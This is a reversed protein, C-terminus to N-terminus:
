KRLRIGDLCFYPPYINNGEADTHPSVLDFSLRDIRGLSTLDVKFWDPAVYDYAPFDPDAGPRIALYFSVQGTEQGNQSGTVLLKVFGSSEAGSAREALIDAGELRLLDDGSPGPLYFRGYRNTAPNPIKPNSVPTGDITYAQTQEDLTGSYVSGYRTLLYNYTTNAVLIHEVIAPQDLTIFAAGASTNGVLYNGTHNPRETFVSFICSDIAAQIQASSLADPGFDPSLSWPYSRWNKNSVAFGSFRGDGSTEANVTVMGSQANGVSFPEEPLAFSFRELPYDEFTIDQPYPVLVERKDQCSSLLLAGALLAYITNFFHKM